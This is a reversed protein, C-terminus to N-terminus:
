EHIGPLSLQERPAPVLQEGDEDTQGRHRGSKRWHGVVERASASHWGAAPCLPRFRVQGADAEVVEGYVSRGKIRCLVLDGVAVRDLRVVL